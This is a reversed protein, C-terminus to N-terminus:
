RAPMQQSRLLALLSAITFAILAATSDTRVLWVGAIMTATLWFPWGARTERVARTGSGTAPPSVRPQSPVPLSDEGSVAPAAVPKAALRRGDVLADKLFKPLVIRYDFCERAVDLAGLSHKAYDGNIQDVAALIEDMTSFGFLGAGTPLVNSFGTEQTIVPRGAALYAASRDSFWGSRLRVNQDKAVTFEGRSQGLYHRYADVDASITAPDIIKWGHGELLARDEVGYSGLALEFTQPTRRPLDIFKMFEHHKSWHYQEGRFTIERWPQRWNGITTFHGTASAGSTEWFDLVIPQRTHEFHFQELLPVGCDPNGYNEGWTFFSRHTELLALTTPVGEFAEIERLVPDTGLYVLRGTRSHELLPDTGGHLNIILDASNYLADLQERTRGYCRGDTHLAHFAWHDAGLDFRRMVDAIFGAALAASDDTEDRMLMSPTRGDAEVYYVDYGLRKFGVLYQVTLFVIGAVPMKSMSGLLVIKKVSPLLM